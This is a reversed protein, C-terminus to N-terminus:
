SPPLRRSGSLTDATHSQEMLENWSCALWNFLIRSCLSSVRGDVVFLVCSNKGVVIRHRPLNTWFGCWWSMTFEAGKWCRKPNLIVSWLLKVWRRCLRHIKKRIWFQGPFNPDQVGQFRPIHTEQSLRQWTVLWIKRKTSNWNLISVTQFCWSSSGDLCIM